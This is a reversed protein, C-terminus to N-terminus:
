MGPVVVPQQPTSLEGEYDQDWPKEEGDAGQQQATPPKVASEASPGPVKGAQEKRSQGKAGEDLDVVADRM